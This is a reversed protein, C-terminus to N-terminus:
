GSCSFGYPDTNPPNRTRFPSSVASNHLLINQLSASTLAAERSSASNKFTTSIPLMRLNLDYTQLTSLSCLWNWTDMVSYVCKSDSILNAPKKELRLRCGTWWRMQVKRGNRTWMQKWSADPDEVLQAVFHEPAQPETSTSSGCVLWNRGTILNDHKLFM